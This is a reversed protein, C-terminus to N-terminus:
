KRHKKVKKGCIPCYKIPFKTKEILDDGDAVTVVMDGKLLTVDVKTDYSEAQLVKQKSLPNGGCFPCVWKIKRTKPATRIEDVLEQIDDDM